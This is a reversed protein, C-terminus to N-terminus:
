QQIFLKQHSLQDGASVKLIYTGAEVEPTLLLHYNGAAQNENVLKTIEKGNMDFLSVVVRDSNQLSYNLVFNENVPNPFVSFNALEKQHVSLSINEAISITATLIKDGNSGSGNAAIIATTFVVNGTGSAPATWNFVWEPTAGIYAGNHTINSGALKTGSGAVFTGKKTGSSNEASLQFGYKSAVVAMNVGNSGITIQYTQLPEYGEQPINTSIIQADTISLATKAPNADTADSHCGTCKAGGDGVSGSVGAIAGGANSMFILAVPLIIASLIITTKLKM